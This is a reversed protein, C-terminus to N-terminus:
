VLKRRMALMFLSFVLLYLVSPEPVNHGSFNSAKDELFYWTGTLYGYPYAGFEEFGAISDIKWAGYFGNIGRFFVTDGEAAQVAGATQYDFLSADGALSIDTLGSYVFVDANSYASTDSAYFWGSYNFAAISWQQYLNNVGDGWSFNDGSEPVENLDGSLLSAYSSTSVMLLFICFLRKIM